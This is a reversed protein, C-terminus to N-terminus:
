KVKINGNEDNDLNPLNQEKGNWRYVSKFHNGNDSEESNPNPWNMM